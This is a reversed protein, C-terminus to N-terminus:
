LDDDTINFAENASPLVNSIITFADCSPDHGEVQSRLSLQPSHKEERTNKNEKLNNEREQDDRESATNSSNISGDSHGNVDSIASTCSRISPNTPKRSIEWGTEMQSLGTSDYTDGNAEVERHEELIESGVSQLLLSLLVAQSTMLTIWEFHDKSMLYEFQFLFESSGEKKQAIRWLRIRTARFVASVRTNNLTEDSYEIVVSRRGIKLGCETNPRPYDSICPDLIEYGYTPQQHCLRLYLLYNKSEELQLLQDSTSSDLAKFHGLHFDSVAQAFLLTLAGPDTLMAGEVKPDWALKRVVIRHFIGLAASKQNLLQLSIYPSEFDRLLRVCLMDDYDAPRRVSTVTTENQSTQRSHAVFLGFKEINEVDLGIKNAFRKLVIGTPHEVNCRVTEKSGDPLYVDITVNRSTPRFSEVQFMLFAHETIFHRGVRPLQVVSQFYRALGIRRENLTKEDLNKWLKKSPFDATRLRTGFQEKLKEHLRLLHSYRISAHYAGNVHLNFATFSRSDDEEVLSQTDPVAVHIM